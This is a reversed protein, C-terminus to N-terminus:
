TLDPVSLQQLYTVVKTMPITISSAFRSCELITRNETPRSQLVVQLDRSQATALAEQIITINATDNFFYELPTGTEIEATRNLLAAQFTDIPMSLTMCVLLSNQMVSQFISQLEQALVAQIM